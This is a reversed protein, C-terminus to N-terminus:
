KENKIGYNLLTVVATLVEIYCDKFTKEHLLTISMKMDKKNVFSIDIRERGENICVNEYGYKQLLRLIKIRYEM